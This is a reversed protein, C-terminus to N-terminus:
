KWGQPLVYEGGIVAQPAYRRADHEDTLYGKDKFEKNGAPSVVFNVFDEALKKNKAFTSVAIAIYSIRPIEEPKLLITEIKEPEWRSFVEWGMVADAGGLAILNATKECSETYSKIRPKILDALKNTEFIEVAYLGVCVARPNAIVLQVDERTLDRLSLIKKPNGKQVNIAPILYAVIKISAPDVIKEKKAKEMFDPSGALYVDGMQALKMQSLLTGSGGYQVIVEVGTKEQYVTIIKAMVPKTVSGIFGTLTEAFIISPSAILSVFFIVIMFFKTFKKRM